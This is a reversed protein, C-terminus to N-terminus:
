RSGLLHFLTTFWEEGGEIIDQPEPGTKIYIPNDLDEWEKRHGILNHRIHDWTPCHFTLHDGTQTHYGCHCTTDQAKGIIHIQPGKETGM